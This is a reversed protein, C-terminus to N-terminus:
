WHASKLQVQVRERRFADKKRKKKELFTLTYTQVTALGGRHRAVGRATSIHVTFGGQGGRPCIYRSNHPALEVTSPPPRDTPFM